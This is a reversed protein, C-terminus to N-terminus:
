RCWTFTRAVLERSEAGALRARAFIQAERRAADLTIGREPSAFFRLRRPPMQASERLVVHGEGSARDPRHGCDIGVVPTEIEVPDLFLPRRWIDQRAAWQRAEAAHGALADSASDRPQAPVATAAMLVFVATRVLM